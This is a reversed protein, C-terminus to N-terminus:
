KYNETPLYLMLTLKESKLNTKSKKKWFTTLMKGIETSSIQKKNLRKFKKRQKLRFENNRKIYTSM